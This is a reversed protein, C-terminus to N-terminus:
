VVTPLLWFAFDLEESKQEEAHNGIFLFVEVMCILCDDEMSQTYCSREKKKTWIKGADSNKVYKKKTLLKMNEQCMTTLKSEGQLLHLKFDATGQGYNPM